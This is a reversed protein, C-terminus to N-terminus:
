SKPAENQKSDGAGGAPPKTDAGKGAPPKTQAAPKPAVPVTRVKVEYATKGGDRQLTTWEPSTRVWEPVHQPNPSANVKLHKTQNPVKFALNRKVIVQM